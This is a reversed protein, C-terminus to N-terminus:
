IEPHSTRGPLLKRFGLFWFAACSTKSPPLTTVLHPTLAGRGGRKADHRAQQEPSCTRARM